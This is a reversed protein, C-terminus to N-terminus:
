RVEPAFPIEDNDNRGAAGGGAGEAGQRTDTAPRDASATQPADRSKHPSMLVFVKGEADPLPLSDFALAFGDGERPFAAGIKHWHKSGDKKPRPSMLDYRM